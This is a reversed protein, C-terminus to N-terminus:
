GCAETEGRFSAGTSPLALVAGAVVPGRVAKSGPGLLRGIVAVPDGENLGDFLKQAPDDYVAWLNWCGVAPTEILILQAEIDHPALPLSLTGSAIRGALLVQDKM